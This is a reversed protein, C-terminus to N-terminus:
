ELQMVHIESDDCAYCGVTCPTHSVAYRKGCCAEVVKNHTPVYESFLQKMVHDEMKYGHRCQPCTFGVEETQCRVNLSGVMCQGCLGFVVIGIPFWLSLAAHRWSLPALVRRQACLADMRRATAVMAPTIEGGGQTGQELDSPAPGVRRGGTAGDAAPLYASAIAVLAAAPDNAEDHAM